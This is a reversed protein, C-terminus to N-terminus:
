RIVIKRRLFYLVGLIMDGISRNRRRGSVDKVRCFLEKYVELFIELELFDEDEMVNPHYCYTVTAFPLKRVKGSQQPIFTFGDKQYVDWAATDSIIRISSQTELAKLTNEDFTHGPAFFIEPEIGKSRLIELGKRIREAQLEYAHGAFESQHNVPNIGGSQSDYVHRYGHLAIWWGKDIWNHVKDWFHEDIPYKEMQPDRCDPILGVLPKIHYKDLLTEMREWKGTDMKEAADDLRLILRQSRM